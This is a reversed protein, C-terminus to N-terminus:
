PWEVGAEAYEERLKKLKRMEALYTDAKANDLEKPVGPKHGARRQYKIINIRCFGICQEYPFHRNEMEWFIDHGRKNKYYNRRLM